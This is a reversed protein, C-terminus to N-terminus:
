YCRLSLELLIDPPMLMNFDKLIEISAQKLDLGVETRLIRLGRSCLKRHYSFENMKSKELSTFDLYKSLFKEIVIYQENTLNNINM